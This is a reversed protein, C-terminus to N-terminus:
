LMCNSALVVSIQKNNNSSQKDFRENLKTWENNTIKPPSENSLFFGIFNMREFAITQWITTEISGKKDFAFETIEHQIATLWTAWLTERGMVRWM